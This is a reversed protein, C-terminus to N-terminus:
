GGSLEPKSRNKCKALLHQVTEAKSTNKLKTYLEAAALLHPEAKGWEQLALWSESIYFNAEAVQQIVGAQEATNIAKEFLEISAQLDGRNHQVRGLTIQSASIAQLTNIEVATETAKEAYSEALALDDRALYAEALGQLAENLGEKDGIRECTTQAEQYYQIAKDFDQQKWYATAMKRQVFSVQRYAGIRKAMEIAKGYFDFAKEIDQMISYVLGINTYSTTLDHINGLAEKIEASKQYYTLSQDMNGAMQAAVGLNNYLQAILVRDGIKEALEIAKTFYEKGREVNRTRLYYIGLNKDITAVLYPAIDEASALNRAETTKEIATDFDGRKAYFSGYRNLLQAKEITQRTSQRTEPISELDQLAIELIEIGADYEAQQECVEALRRKLQVKELMTKALDLAQSFSRNAQEYDGLLLQLEGVRKLARLVYKPHSYPPYKDDILSLAQNYFSLAAQNSYQGKAKDGAAILYHIAKDLTRTDKEGNHFHFALEEYAREINGRNRVEIETAIQTHITRRRMGPITQYAVQQTVKHSFEFVKSEIPHILDFAVLSQLHNTISDLQPSIKTLLDTEFRLGVISGNQVLVKDSDNLRDLRAQVMQEVSDPIQIDDIEKALLWQDSHKVLTGDEILDYLVEQMYQPNGASHQVILETFREVQSRNADSTKLPLMMRLCDQSQETNLPQLQILTLRNTLRDVVQQHVRWSPNNKSPLFLSLFYIKEAMCTELLFSLLDASIDDIWQLDDFVIVLPLQRSIATLLDRIAAFTSQKLTEPDLYRIRTELHEPLPLSLLQSGIFAVINDTFDATPQGSTTTDFLSKVAQILKRLSGDVTDSETINALHRIADIFVSYAVKTTQSLATTEIFQVQDQCHSQLEKKFQSKGLGSQGIVHTVWGGSRRLFTEASERIQILEQDRGIFGSILPVETHSIDIHSDKKKGLLRYIKQQHGGVEVETKEHCDFLNRVLRYTRSGILIEGDESIDELVEALEVPEGIVTYDMKGTGDGSIDGISIRGTNIGIHVNLPPVDFQQHMRESFNQIREICELGALVAREPDNEHVIPAGFIAVVADGVLQDVVGEYKYIVEGLEHHVNDILEAIRAPQDKFKESLATFGSLDSRLITVMKREGRITAAADNIKERLYPPIVNQLRTKTLGDQPQSQVLVEIESVSEKKELAAFIPVPESIGKLMVPRLSEFTFYSQTLQHTAPSLVIQNLEAKAKIRAALNVTDGIVTLDSFKGTGIQGVWAPGNNIGIQITANETQQVTDRLDLAALLAFIPDYKHSTKTGWTAMVMGQIVKDVTGGYREIIHNLQLDLQNKLIANEEVQDLTATAPLEFGEILAFLVAVPKEVGLGGETEKQAEIERLTVEGLLQDTSLDKDSHDVEFSISKAQDQNDSNMMGIPVTIIPM